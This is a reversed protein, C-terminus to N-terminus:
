LAIGFLVRSTDRVMRDPYKKFEMLEVLPDAVDVRKGKVWLEIQFNFMQCVCMDLRPHFDKLVKCLKPKTIHTTARNQLAAIAALAAPSKTM